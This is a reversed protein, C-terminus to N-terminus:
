SRLLACTALAVFGWITNTGMGVSNRPTHRGGVAAVIAIAGSGHVRGGRSLGETVDHCVM